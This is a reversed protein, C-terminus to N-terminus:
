ADHSEGALQADLGKVISQLVPRLREREARAIASLADADIGRVIREIEPLQKLMHQSLSVLSGRKDLPDPRREVIGDREMRALTNAMTPQEVGAFQALAKQSLQPSNRLATIVPLHGSSLGLPKLRRDALQRLARALAHVLFGISAESSPM